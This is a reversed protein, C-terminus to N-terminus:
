QKRVVSAGVAAAIFPAPPMPKRITVTAQRILPFAELLSEAVATALREVTQYQSHRILKEAIQAATAYDVTDSIEDTADATGDVTLEIDINYRHGIAREEAPVGHYAYIDLGEIFVTFVSSM